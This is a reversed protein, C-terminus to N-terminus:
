EEEVQRGSIFQIIALAFLFAIPFMIFWQIQEPVALRQLLPYVLTTGKIIYNYFYYLGTPFDMGSQLYVANQDQLGISSYRKAYDGNDAAIFGMLKQGFSNNTNAIEAPAGPIYNITEINTVNTNDIGNGKPLIPLMTFLTLTMSIGMFLFIFRIFNM